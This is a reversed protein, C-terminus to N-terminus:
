WHSNVYSVMEDYSNFLHNYDWTRGSPHTIDFYCNGSADERKKTFIWGDIVYCGNM